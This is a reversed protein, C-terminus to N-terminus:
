GVLLGATDRLATKQPKAEVLLPTTHQAKRDHLPDKLMRSMRNSSLRPMTSTLTHHHFHLLCLMSQTCECPSNDPCAQMLSQILRMTVLTTDLWGADACIDCMAQVAVCGLGQLIMVLMKAFWCCGM